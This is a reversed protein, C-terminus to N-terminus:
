LRPDDPRETLDIGDTSQQLLLEDLVEDLMGLHNSQDSFQRKIDALYGTTNYLRQALTRALHIAIAPNAEIFESASDSVHARVETRAVVSASYPIGLLASMEGFVAGPMRVRAVENSGRLVSVEGEILFMLRNDQEGESLLVDGARFPLIPLDDYTELSISM